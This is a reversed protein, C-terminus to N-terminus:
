KKNKDLITQMSKQTALYNNMRQKNRTKNKSYQIHMKKELCTEYQTLKDMLALTTKNSPEKKAYYRARILHTRKYGCDSIRTIDSCLEPHNDCISALSDDDCATLWFTILFLLPM